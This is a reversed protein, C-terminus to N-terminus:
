ATEWPDLLVRGRAGRRGAVAMAEAVEELAFVRPPPLPLRGEEVMACLQAFEAQGTDGVLHDMLWFGVLSRSGLILPRAVVPTPDGSASGYFVLRGFPGLGDAAAQTVPGGVADFVVDVPGDGARRLEAAFTDPSPDVAATAGAQRVTERSRDDRATAIRARVGRAALLALLLRGVAGTAGVVAAAADPGPDGGARLLLAATLGPVFVGLADADGVGGPVPFLLHEPVVAYQAYGGTRCIGAVREGTDVRTGVVEGGPIGPLEEIRGTFHNAGTRCSRVDGFNVAGYTVRVLVEGTGATPVPLPVAKLVEPGGREEQLVGQMTTTM